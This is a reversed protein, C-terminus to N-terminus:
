YNIKPRNGTKPAVEKAFVMYTCHDRAMNQLNIIEEETYNNLTWLYQKRMPARKQKAPRGRGRAPPEIISDERSM